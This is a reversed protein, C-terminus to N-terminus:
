TRQHQGRNSLPSLPLLLVDLERMSFFSRGAEHQKPPGPQIYGLYRVIPDGSLVGPCSSGQDHLSKILLGEGNSQVDELFHPTVSPSLYGLTYLIMDWTM